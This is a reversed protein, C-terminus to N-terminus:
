GFYFVEGPMIFTDRCPHLRDFAHGARSHKIGGKSHDQDAEESSDGDEGYQPQQEVDEETASKDGDGDQSPSAGFRATSGSRRKGVVSKSIASKLPRHKRNGNGARSYM